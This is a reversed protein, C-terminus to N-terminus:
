DPLVVALGKVRSLGSHRFFQVVASELEVFQGRGPVRLDDEGIGRLDWLGLSHEKSDGWIAGARQNLVKMGDCSLFQLQAAVGKILLPKLNDKLNETKIAGLDDQRAVGIRDRGIDCGDPQGLPM